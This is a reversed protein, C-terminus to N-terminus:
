SEMLLGVIREAFEKKQKLWSSHNVNSEISLTKVSVRSREQLFHVEAKPRTHFLGTYQGMLFWHDSITNVLHATCPPRLGTDGSQENRIVSVKWAWCARKELEQTSLLGIKLYLLPHSTPFARVSFWGLRPAMTVICIRAKNGQVRFSLIHKNFGM